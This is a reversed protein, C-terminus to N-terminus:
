EEAERRDLSVKLDGANGPEVDLSGTVFGEKEFTVRVREGHDGQTTELSFRGNEDTLIPSLGNVTVNVGPIFNGEGDVVSGAIFVRAREITLRANSGELACTVAAKGEKFRWGEAELELNVEGNRYSHPINKFDVAGKDDIREEKVEGGLLMRVTGTGKLAAKGEADRLIVTFDFPGSRPILLFGLVVVLLFLVVPGGLELNGSFQKGKYRAYSRMAGFFLVAPFAGMALLLIYYVNQEIGLNVLDKAKFVYFVLLGIAIILFVLSFVAYAMPSIQQRVPRETTKKAKRKKM